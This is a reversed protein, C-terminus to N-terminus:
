LEDEGTEPGRVRRDIGIGYRELMAILRSRGPIQRAARTAPGREAAEWALRAVEYAARPRGLRRANAARQALLAGGGLLWHCLIELAEVSNQALEGAGGAIVFAANGVEQGPLVDVLLLPRGGALSETVILGGAKCIICDAACIMQPLNEVFNYVYAPVHWETSLFHRYLEDDGGAVLALQVPLGSHNIVHLAGSMHKVRKSGVALVTTLDPQWGLEARVAEAACGERAFVPHVPIGTIQVKDPRLGAEIAMKLVTETPVLTLDSAKHFWIPHVTALDTVVTLLPIYRRSIIFFANLPAQYGPYTSVIADPQTRQLLDRLTEYLAITFASEIVTTPLAAGTAQYGLQYLGPLETVIKDYAESSRLLSPVRDSELPNVIEVECAGACVEGLAAAIANAASRHGYGAHSTLILIRKEPM